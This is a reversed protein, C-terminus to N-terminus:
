LGPFWPRGILERFPWPISALIVVLAIGFYTFAKKYKVEDSVQKKAKIYGMTILIIAILMGMPHEIWFFRLVRDKMFSAGEPPVTTIFGYRGLAVQYFGLLATTHAAILTILWVKKDGPTLAKKGKWGTYAKVTSVLLFILIVWRLINHLHVLGTQM